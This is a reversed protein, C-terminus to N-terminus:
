QIRPFCVDLSKGDFTWIKNRLKPWGELFVIFLLECCGPQGTATLMDTLAVLSLSCPHQYYDFTM